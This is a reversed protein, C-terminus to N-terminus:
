QPPEPMKERAQALIRREGRTLSELGSRSIKELLPDIEEAIFEELSMQRRHERVVRRERLARQLWSPRGFGLLHAYLWGAACGGLYSSHGVVGHRDFLLLLVGLACLAYGLHKTKLKVPLLFFISETLEMEPLITAFAVVVAAVGGSAALLVSTAPMLFLHSLEGGVAGCFYLYLFHKQGLISEVDRGLLYLVLMNAAFQFVGAHLFLASLFQWAYAQDIGRYSLGLYEPVVAPEYAQLMQQAIFLALNVGLLSLLVVRQRPM